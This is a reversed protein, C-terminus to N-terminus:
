CTLSVSPFLVFPMLASGYRIRERSFVPGTSLLEFLNGGLMCDKVRGTIEGNELAYALDLNATFEGTLTNSQGLGIFQDVLVGGRVGAVLSDFGDGGGEVVVTSLSTGPLSAHGRSGNGSPNVGLRAAYKLNSVWETIVGRDIIKKTRAPVGEDDFPYSYGSGDALPDDIFTFGESFVRSGLKGAFPSIGKFVSRAAIGSSVIGLLSAFAKPTCVVPVTGIKVSRQARARELKWLLRAVADNYEVPATSSVGESVSLRVGDASVITATIGVGFSSHRYSADFGASNIIRREGSGFSIGLDVQAQPFCEIIRAVADEAGSLLPGEDLDEIRGSDCKVSPLEAPGPLEYDEEDGYPAIEIARRMAREVGEDGGAYSFGVRGDVNVRVGSGGSEKEAVSYLRNNRYSVTVSRGSVGIIDYWRCRACLSAPPEINM